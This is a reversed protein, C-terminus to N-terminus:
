KINLEGWPFLNDDILLGTLDKISIKSVIVMSYKINNKISIIVMISIIKPTLFWSRNLCLIDKCHPFFILIIKELM